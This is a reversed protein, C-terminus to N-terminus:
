SAPFSNPPIGSLWQSFCHHSLAQSCPAGRSCKCVRWFSDLVPTLHPGSFSLSAWLTQSLCWSVCLTGSFGRSAWVPWYLYARVHGPPVSQCLSAWIAVLFGLTYSLGLCACLSVFLCLSALLLGSFGLSAWPFGSLGLLSLSESLGWFPLFALCTRWSPRLYDFLSGPFCLSWWVPLFLCFCVCVIM